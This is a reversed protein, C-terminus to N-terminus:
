WAGPLLFTGHGFGGGRCFCGQGDVRCRTDTATISPEVRIANAMGRVVLRLGRLVRRSGRGWLDHDIIERAVHGAEVVAQVLGFVLKLEDHPQDTAIAKGISKRNDVALNRNGPVPLAGRSVGIYHTEDRAGNRLANGKCRATGLAGVGVPSLPEM